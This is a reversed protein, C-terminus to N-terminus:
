NSEIDSEFKFIPKVLKSPELQWRAISKGGMAVNLANLQDKCEDTMEAWQGMMDLASLTNFRLLSAIIRDQEQTREELDEVKKFLLRVAEITTM